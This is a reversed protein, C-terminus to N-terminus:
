QNALSEIMSSLSTTVLSMYEYNLTEPLDIGTHYYPNRFNATDTIMFANIGYQWFAYNDSRRIDPVLFEPAVLGTAPFRESSRFYGLSDRLFQRSTLNGVFAVFNGRHPYFYKLPFPYAQSHDSDDYYGLMELSIMGTIKEGRDTANKAHVLSGMQETAYFPSEENVFAVWRVTRQLKKDMLLRATELLVAIGSANDDAGPSLWVSDYHAGIILVQNDTKKGAIEVYVNKYTQDQGQFEELVAQYGFSTFQEQIYEASANLTGSMQFHREGVQESLFEVHSKLRSILTKEQENLPLAPSNLMVGPMSMMYFAVCVLLLSCLLLISILSRM